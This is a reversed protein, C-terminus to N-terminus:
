RICPGSGAGIMSMVRIKADVPSRSLGSLHLARACSACCAPAASAGTLHLGGRPSLLAGKHLGAGGARRHVPRTLRLQQAAPTPPKTSSSSSSSSSSSNRATGRDGTGSVAATDTMLPPEALVGTPASEGHSRWQQLGALVGSRAVMRMLFLVCGIAVSHSVHPRRGTAPAPSLQWTHALGTHPSQAPAIHPTQPALRCSANRPSRARPKIKTAPTPVTPRINAGIPSASSPSALRRAGPLRRQGFSRPENPRFAIHCWGSM